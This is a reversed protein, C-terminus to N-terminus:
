LCHFLEKYENSRVSALNICLCCRTHHKRQYYGEGGAQPAALTDLERALINERCPSYLNRESPKEIM